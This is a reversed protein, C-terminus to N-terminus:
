LLRSYGNQSCFSRLFVTVVSSRGLWVKFLFGLLGGALSGSPSCLGSNFAFLFLVAAELILIGRCSKM